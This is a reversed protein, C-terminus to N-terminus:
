GRQRAGVRSHSKRERPSRLRQSESPESRLLWIAAQVCAWLIPEWCLRARVQAAEEAARNSISNQQPAHTEQPVKPCPARHGILDTIHELVPCPHRDPDTMAPKIGCITDCGSVCHVDSGTRHVLGTVGETMAPEANSQSRLPYWGGVEAGKRAPGKSNKCQDRKQAVAEWTQLRLLWIGGAASSHRWCASLRYAREFLHRPQSRSPFPDVQRLAGFLSASMRLLAAETPPRKRQLM